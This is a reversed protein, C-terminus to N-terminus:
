LMAFLITFVLVASCKLMRYLCLYNSLPWYFLSSSNYFCSRLCSQTQSGNLGPCLMCSVFSRRQTEWKQLSFAFFLCEFTFFFICVLGEDWRVAGIDHNNGNFLPWLVLPPGQPRTHRYIGGELLCQLWWWDGQERTFWISKMWVTELREINSDRRTERGEHLSM